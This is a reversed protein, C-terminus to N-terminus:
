TPAEEFAWAGYGVVRDRYGATDGSNCVCLPRAQLRRREAEILLGALALLFGRANDPGLMAWDGCGIAAATAKDLWRATDYDYIALRNAQPFRGSRIGRRLKRIMEVNTSMGPLITLVRM